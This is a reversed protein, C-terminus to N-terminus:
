GPASAVALRARGASSRPVLALAFSAVVMGLAVLSAAGPPLTPGVWNALGLGDGYVAVVHVVYVLLTRAAVRGAWAPVRVRAEVGALVGAACMVWGLRGLHDAVLEDAGLHRVALGCAVLLAAGGFLRRSRVHSSAVDIWAGCAVGLLMHGAWPLLPFISGGRSSVYDVLPAWAGSPDLTHTVPAALVLGVGLAACASVFARRTPLFWVMGELLALSVGICQLVDVAVFRRLAEHAAGDDGGLAVVPLHVAYGLVVLAAARRLRRRLAHANARHADFRRVTSLHFAVGAVFLFAVATLGRTWSWAAHLIGTRAATALVADVTHGQVMQFAAVVRLLDVFRVRVPTPEGM